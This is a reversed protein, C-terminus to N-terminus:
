LDFLSNDLEIHSILKIVVEENYKTRISMHDGDVGDGFLTIHGDYDVDVREVIFTTNAYRDFFIKNWEKQPLIEKAEEFTKIRFKQGVKYKM